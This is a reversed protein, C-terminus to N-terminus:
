KHCAKCVWLGHVNCYAYAAVVEEGDDLLFQVCPEDDPVLDKRYVGINTELLIWQIYHNTVMPHPSEGVCVKVQHSAYLFGHRVEAVTVDPVHKESAPDIGETRPILENMPQGCCVPNVGSEWIMQIQNGCVSCQYFKM